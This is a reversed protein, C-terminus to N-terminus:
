PMICIVPTYLLFPNVLLLQIWGVEYSNDPIRICQRFVIRPSDLGCMTNFVVICVNARVYSVNGKHCTTKSLNSLFEESTHGGQLLSRAWCLLNRAIRSWLKCLTDKWLSRLSAARPGTVLYNKWSVNTSESLPASYFCLRDDSVVEKMSDKGETTLTSTFTAVMGVFAMIFSNEFEAVQLTNEVSCDNLLQQTVFRARTEVCAEVINSFSLSKITSDKRRSFYHLSRRCYQLKQQKTISHNINFNNVALCINKCEGYAYSIDETLEKSSLFLQLHKLITKRALLASYNSSYRNAGGGYKSRGQCDLLTATVDQLSSTSQLLRRYNVPESDVRQQSLRGRLQYSFFGDEM